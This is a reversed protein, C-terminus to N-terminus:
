ATTPAPTAPRSFEAHAAIIAAADSLRKSNQTAWEYFGLAGLADAAKKNSTDRWRTTLKNIAATMLGMVACGVIIAPLLALQSFLAVAVGVIATDETALPDWPRDVSKQENVYHAIRTQIKKEQLQEPSLAAVTPAATASGVTSM